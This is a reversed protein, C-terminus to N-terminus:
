STRVHSGEYGKLYSALKEIRVIDDDLLGLALNCRRCLLGRRKSTKHDHDADLVNEKPLGRCVACRGEQEQNVQEFEDVTWGIRGLDRKRFLSKTREPNEKKWRRSREQSCELCSTTPRRRRDLSFDTESGVYGCTGCIRVVILSM